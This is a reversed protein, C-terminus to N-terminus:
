KLAKACDTDKASFVSEGLRQIAWKKWKQLSIIRKDDLAFM